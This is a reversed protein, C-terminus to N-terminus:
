KYDYFHDKLDTFKYFDEAKLVTVKFPQKKQASKLIEEWEVPAYVSAYRRSRKEVVAFDRDSPLM